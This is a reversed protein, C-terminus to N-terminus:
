EHIYEALVELVGEEEFKHEKGKKSVLWGKEDKV